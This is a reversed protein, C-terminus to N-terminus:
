NSGLLSLPASLGRFSMEHILDGAVTFALCNPRPAKLDTTGTAMAASVLGSRLKSLLKKEPSNKPATALQSLLVKGTPDM